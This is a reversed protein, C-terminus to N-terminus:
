FSHACVYMLMRADKRFDVQWARMFARACARLRDDCVYFCGCVLGRVREGESQRDRM